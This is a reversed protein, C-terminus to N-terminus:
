SPLSVAKPKEPLSRQRLEQYVKRKGTRVESFVQKSSLNCLRLSRAEKASKGSLTADGALGTLALMAEFTGCKLKRSM